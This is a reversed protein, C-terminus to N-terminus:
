WGPNQIMAPMKRLEDNPIPFLHMEPRFVHLRDTPNTFTRTYTLVGTTANRTITMARNYGNNVAEAIKWRRIDDWRSDAEYALEIHRENRVVERMEAVTMNAKLGYLGNTGATIGARSRLEILKPYALQTQGTENIAEAYDLLIEAYRLLPWGRETQFSSNSSIDADCMKRCYYGTRTNSGIGDNGPAGVYTLVPARNNTTTSFYLSNNYIITYDFRPDRNVYPNNPDYGSAINVTGDPNLIQLGNKMPFCDVIQQTPQTNRAGGRSPPNYHAELERNPVRNVFVIYEPNVRKLFVKYFGFGPATTNDVNLAYNNSQIVANAADAAAQWRSVNYAPYGALPKNAPTAAAITGGNFLPSAAFLLLRAKVAMCAGKTVRGYDRDEYGLPYPTNAPPLLAAAEDFEKSVYTVCEEYTNRPVDIIDDIGFVKDGILPVGGFNNLLYTYFYARMFRAEGALRKQLGESLPTTPLKSLLLNARRINTWPLTWADGHMFNVPNYVGAWLGVTRRATSGLTYEGDDTAQETTGSGEWRGKYFNFGIEEYMRTVFAMTRTSDTFVADDTLATTSKDDLFTAKKCSSVGIFLVMGIIYIKKM